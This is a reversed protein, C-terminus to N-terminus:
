LKKPLQVYYTTSMRPIIPNIGNMFNLNESFAVFISSAERKTKVNRVLYYLKTVEFSIDETGCENIQSFVNRISCVLFSQGVFSEKEWNQVPKSSNVFFIVFAYKVCYEFNLIGVRWCMLLDVWTSGHDYSPYKKM